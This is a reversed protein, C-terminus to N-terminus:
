WVLFTINLKKNKEYYVKKGKSYYLSGPLKTPHIFQYELNMDFGNESMKFVGEFDKKGTYTYRSVRYNITDIKEEITFWAGSGCGALWTGKKSNFVQKQQIEGEMISPATDFKNFFCSKYEKLISRNTYPSVKTNYVQYITNTTGKLVNGIPSPTCLYSITLKTKIKKQLTSSRLTDAVFRACNSGNKIFAGYPIEKQNIYSNIFTSAKKIILKKM